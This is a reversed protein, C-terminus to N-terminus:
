GQVEYPGPEQGNPEPQGGSSRDPRPGLSVDAARIPRLRGEGRPAAPRPRTPRHAGNKRSRGTRGPAFSAITLPENEPDSDNALGAIDVLTGAITKAGDDEAIPDQDAPGGATFSVEGPASPNGEFKAFLITALDPSREGPAGRTRTTGSPAPSARPRAM